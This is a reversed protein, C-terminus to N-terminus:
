MCKTKFLCKPILIGNPTKIGKGPLLFVDVWTGGLLSFMDGNAAHFTIRKLLLSGMHGRRERYVNGADSRERKM